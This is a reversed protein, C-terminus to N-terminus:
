WILFDISKASSTNWRIRLNETTDHPLKKCDRIFGNMKVINKTNWGYICNISTLSSCGNFLNEINTVQSTDWKSLDPLSILQKCDMFIEFLNEM